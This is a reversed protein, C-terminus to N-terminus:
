AKIRGRDVVMSCHPHGAGNYSPARSRRFDIAPFFFRASCYLLNLRGATLRSYLRLSHYLECATFLLFRSSLSSLFFSLPFFSLSFPLALSLSLFLSLPSSPISCLPQFPPSSIASKIFLTQSRALRFGIENYYGKM